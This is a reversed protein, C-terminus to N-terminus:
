SDKFSVVQNMKDQFVGKEKVAPNFASGSSLCHWLIADPTSVKAGM